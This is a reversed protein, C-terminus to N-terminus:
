RSATAAHSLTATTKCIKSETQDPIPESPLPEAPVISEIACEQLSDFGDSTSGHSCSMGPSSTRNESVAATAQLGTQWLHRWRLGTCACTLCFVVPLSASSLLCTVSKGSQGAEMHMCCVLTMQSLNHKASFMTRM